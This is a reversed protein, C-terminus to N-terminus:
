LLWTRWSFPLGCIQKCWWVLFCAYCESRCFQRSLSCLSAAWNLQTTHLGDPLRLFALSGNLFFSLISSNFEYTTYDWILSPHWYIANLFKTVNDSKLKEKYADFVLLLLLSLRKLCTGLKWIEKVFSNILLVLIWQYKSYECCDESCWQVCDKMQISSVVSFVYLHLSTFSFFCDVNRNSRKEVMKWCYYCYRSM